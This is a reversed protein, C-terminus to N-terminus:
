PEWTVPLGRVGYIEANVKFELDDFPVALRLTPIRDFLTRYAIELEARALNHGLCLHTGYGFGLHGRQNPRNIDLSDPLAFVTPDRNIASMIPLLGDGARIQRGGLEFDKIATRAIDIDGLSHFRVMEDAAAAALVPNVRLLRLQDPYHLFTLVGLAITNATSEHGALLLLIATSVLTEHSLEGRACHQTILRGLIDPTPHREKATVVNDLFDYLETHARAKEAGTADRSVLTATHTQFFGHSSDDIGLLRCIVSSPLPLAYAAVLDTDPGADLMDDILADVLQQIGPRLENIRRVSLEPLLMRRYATHEPPDMEILSRTSRGEDGTEKIEDPFPDPFNAHRPDSSVDNRALVERADAMSTIAWATKEGPLRVRTVAGADRLALYDAPPAFPCTRESPVRPLDSPDYLVM